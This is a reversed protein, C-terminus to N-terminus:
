KIRDLVEGYVTLARYAKDDSSRGRVYGVAVFGFVIVSLMVVIKKTLSSMGTDKERKRAGRSPSIKNYCQGSLNAPNATRPAFGKVILQLRPCRTGVSFWSASPM